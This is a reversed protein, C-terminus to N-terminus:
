TVAFRLGNSRTLSGETAWSVACPVQSILEMGIRGFPTTGVTKTLQEVSSPCVQLEGTDRHDRRQVM